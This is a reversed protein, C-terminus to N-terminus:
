GRLFLFKYCDKIQKNSYNQMLLVTKKATVELLRVKANEAYIITVSRTLANGPLLETFVTTNQTWITVHWGTTPNRLLANSSVPRYVLNGRLRSSTVCCCQFVTGACCNAAAAIVDCRMVSTESAVSSYVCHRLVARAAQVISPKYSSFRRLRWRNLALILSVRWLAIM